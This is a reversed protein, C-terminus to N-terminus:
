DENKIKNANMLSESRESPVLSRQSYLDEQPAIFAFDKDFNQKSSKLM